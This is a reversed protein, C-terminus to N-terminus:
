AVADAPAPRYRYGVRRVTEIRSRHEPGLKRRLRTVLVDVTRGAQGPDDDIRHGWVQRLLAARSYVRGPHRVLFDLVEFELYTLDLLEGDLWAAWASRDVLLGARGAPSPALYPVAPGGPPVTGPRGIPVPARHLPRVDYREAPGGAAAPRVFATQPQPGAAGPLRRVTAAAPAIVRPAVAPRGTAAPALQPSM